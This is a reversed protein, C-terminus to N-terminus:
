KQKLLYKIIAQKCWMIEKFAEPNNTHPTFDIFEMRGMIINEELYQAVRKGETYGTGLDNDLSIFEVKGKKILGIVEEVTRAHYNFGKPMKREDDLWVILKIKREYQINSKPHIESNNEAIVSVPFWNDPKITSFKKM